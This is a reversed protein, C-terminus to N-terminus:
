DGGLFVFLRTEGIRLVRIRPTGWHDEITGKVKVTTGVSVTAQCGHWVDDVLLLDLTEGSADDM